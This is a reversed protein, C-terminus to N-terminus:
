GIFTEISSVEIHVEQKYTQLTAEIESLEAQAIGEISMVYIPEGESGAVDSSLELINFGVQYLANTIKAVIGAHDAGYVTIRSNPIQNVFLTADMDQFNFSLKLKEAIPSIAQKLQQLSNNSNVMLMITFNGGLRNMSAEGLQAGNDYLAQSIQAVIGPQDNGILTLM